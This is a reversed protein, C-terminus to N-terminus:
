PKRKEAILDAIVLGVMVLRVAFGVIAAPWGFLTRFQPLCLRLLLDVGVAACLIVRVIVATKREGRLLKKMVIGFALALVPLIFYVVLEHGTLRYLASLGLTLWRPLAAFGADFLFSLPGRKAVLGMYGSVALMYPLPLLSVAQFVYTYVGAGSLKKGTKVGFRM